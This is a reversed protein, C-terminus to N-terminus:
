NQKLAGYSGKKEIFDIVHHYINTVIEQLSLGDDIIIFRERDQKIRLLYGEEIKKLSKEDQFRFDFYNVGSADKIKRNHLRKQLTSINAKIFFTLDPLPFNFIKEVMFFDSFSLARRRFIQYAFTSDSYRDCFIFKQQKLAPLIVREVHSARQTLMFLLELQPSPLTDHQKSFFGFFLNRLKESFHSGGPERTFVFSGEFHESKIKETLLRVVQSKGSCDLGELTFFFM